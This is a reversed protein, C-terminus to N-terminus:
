EATNKSQITVEYEEKGGPYVFNLYMADGNDPTNFRVADTETEGSEVPVTIREPLGGVRCGTLYTGAADGDNTVTVTLAVMRRDPAVTEPVSVSELSLDPATALRTRADETLPYRTGGYQLAASETEVTPLDFMLSGSKREGTYVEDIDPTTSRFGPVSTAPSYQEDGLTLQYASPPPDGESDPPSIFAFQDYDPTKVGTADDGVGYRYSSRLKVDVKSPEQNTPTSTKTSTPTNDQTPTQTSPTSASDATCGAMLATLPLANLFHRRKM